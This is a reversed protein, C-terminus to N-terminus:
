QGPLAYTLTAHAILKEDEASYIHCDGVVLRRGSKLINGKALLDQLTARRLFNLTISTTVAQEQRGFNANIAAYLSLDALTFITPGSITGGPRLHLPKTKLRVTVHGPGTETIRIANEGMQQDLEPFVEAFFDNVEGPSLVKQNEM